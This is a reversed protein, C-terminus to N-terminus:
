RTRFYALAAVGGVSLFSGWIAQQTPKKHDIYRSIPLLMLPVTSSIASIIASSGVQQLAVQM